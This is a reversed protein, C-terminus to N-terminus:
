RALSSAPMYTLKKTVQGSSLGGCAVLRKQSLGQGQQQSRPVVSDDAKATLPEATQTTNKPDDDSSVLM